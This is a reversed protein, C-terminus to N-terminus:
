GLLQKIFSQVEIKLHEESSTNDIVLDAQQKKQSLPLQKEMITKIVDSSTHDRSTARQIQQEPTCYVVASADCQSHLEKEFLLPVDYFIFSNSCAKAKELFHAPLQEYVFDELQKLINPKSFAVQRLNQFHIEGDVVADSALGKVFEISRYDDYIDHVLADADIVDYSMTRLLNSVTSKGSGIGGTLGIIPIPCQHLRTKPTLTIWHAKLFTDM